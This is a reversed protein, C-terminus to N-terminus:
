NMKYGRGPITSILKKTGPLDIKRRLAGIHSEITNSFPDASMDWVHEMIMSRTLVNGQNKILYELLMFEKRSLPINKKKRFAMHNHCDLKLDEIKLLQNQVERPRRLLARLRALLEIFDYPKALCDDAGINLLEAKEESESNSCFILIPVNRGSNRLERCIEKGSKKPLDNNLIIADYSNTRAVYSGKEGDEAIDVAFCEAQLNVKLFNASDSQQEIILLRM